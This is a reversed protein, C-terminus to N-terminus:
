SNPFEEAPPTFNATYRAVGNTIRLDDLFGNMVQGFGNDAGVILSGGVNTFGNQTLAFTGDLVGGVFVRLVNIQRAAAVHTWVGVPIAM